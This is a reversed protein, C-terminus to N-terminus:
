GRYVRGMGAPIPTRERREREAAAKADAEEKEQHKREAERRRRDEFIEDPDVAVRELRYAIGARMNAPVGNHDVSVIRWGPKLKKRVHYILVRVVTTGWSPGGDPDNGYVQDMLRSLTCPGHDILDRLIEAQHGRMPKAIDSLNM